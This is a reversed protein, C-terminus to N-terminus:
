LWENEVLGYLSTSSATEGLGCGIRRRGLCRMGVSFPLGKWCCILGNILPVVGTSGGSNWTQLKRKKEEREGLKSLWSKGRGDGLQWGEFGLHQISGVVTHGADGSGWSVLKHSCCSKAFATVTCASYRRAILMEQEKLRNAVPKVNTQRPHTHSSVSVRGIATCSTYDELPEAVTSVRCVLVTPYIFCWRDCCGACCLVFAGLRCCCCHHVFLVLFYLFVYWVCIIYSCVRRKSKLTVIRPECCNNNTQKQADAEM